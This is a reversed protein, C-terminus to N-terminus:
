WNFWYLRGCCCWIVCGIGCCCWRMCCYSLCSRCGSWGGWSSSSSWFPFLFLSQNYANKGCQFRLSPQILPLAQFQTLEVSYIWHKSILKQWTQVWKLEYVAVTGRTRWPHFYHSNFLASENINRLHRPYNIILIADNIKIILATVKMLTLCWAQFINLVIMLPIVNWENQLSQVLFSYRLEM